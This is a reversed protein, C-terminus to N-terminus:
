GQPHEDCGEQCSPCEYGQNQAKRKQFAHQPPSKEEVSAAATKETRRDLFTPRRPVRFGRSSSSDPLLSGIATRKVTPKM